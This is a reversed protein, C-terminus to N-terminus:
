FWWSFIRIVGPSGYAPRAAFHFSYSKEYKLLMKACKLKWKKLLTKVMKFFFLFCKRVLFLGLYFLDYTGKNAKPVPQHTWSSFGAPPSESGRDSITVYIFCSQDFFHYVFLALQLVYYLCSFCIICSAHGLSILVIENSRSLRVVYDQIYPYASYDQAKLEYIHCGCNLSGSQDIQQNIM